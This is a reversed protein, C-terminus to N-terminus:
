PLYSKLPKKTTPIKLSKISVEMSNTEWTVWHHLIQRGLLSVCSVHTGDRPRSSLGSSSIAVWEQIRAGLIGHVSSVPPICAMPNCLTLCSQTVSCVLMHFGLLLIYYSTRYLKILQKLIDKRYCWEENMEKVEVYMLSKLQKM